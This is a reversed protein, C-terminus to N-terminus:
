ISRQYQKLFHLFNSMKAQGLLIYPILLIIEYLWIM